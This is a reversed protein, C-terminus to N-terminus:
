LHRVWQDTTNCSIKKAPIGVYVGPESIDKNVLSMAGIIVDDCITVPGLVTTGAGIVVNDGMSFVNRQAHRELYEPSDATRAVFKVDAMIAVRGDSVIGNGGLLIGAPHSISLKKVQISESSLDIGYVILLIRDLIMALYKGIVPFSHVKRTLFIHARIHGELKWADLLFKKM